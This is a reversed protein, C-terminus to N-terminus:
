RQSVASAGVAPLRGTNENDHRFKPWSSPALARSESPIAYLINGSGIYINGDAGVAPSSHIEGASATQVPFSWRRNGAADIAFVTGFASGFYLAGGDGLTPSSKIPGSGGGFVWRRAGNLPDVAYLAGSNDGVYITGDTGITPSTNVNEATPSPASWKLQGGPTVAYVASGAGVYITGDAGVAPSSWPNQGTGFAWRESGDAANIAYLNGNGTHAIYITGAVVAPSSAFGLGIYNYRSVTWRPQCDAPNIAHLRHAFVPSNTAVYITGDDGLAPSSPPDGLEAHCQETGDPGIAYVNGNRAGLIIAGDSAVAPSSTGGAPFPAAWKETGDPNLAYLNDNGGLTGTFLTAVYITGGPAVAPSSRIVELANRPTFQWGVGPPPTTFSLIQGKATGGSNSAAARFYYTTGATLGSVGASVPVDSTSSAVPQSPTPNLALATPSPDTGWEFWVATASGGPNVMGNLAASTSTVSSAVTTTVAPATWNALLIGLDRGDVIEDRNIDSPPTDTRGWDALLQNLDTQDVLGDGNLDGALGGLDITVDRAQDLTVQCSHGSCNNGTGNWGTVISGTWLTVSLTVVIGRDFLGGCGPENVTGRAITCDIGMPQSAVRGSGTGVGSITLSNFEAPSGWPERCSVNHARGSKCAYVVTTYGGTTSAGSGGLRVQYTGTLVGTSLPVTFVIEPDRGVVDDAEALQTGGPDYLAATADLTSGFREAYVRVVITDGGEVSRLFLTFYDADGGTTIVGTAAGMQLQGDFLSFTALSTATSAADNPEVELQPALVLVTVTGTEPRCADSVCVLVFVFTRSTGAGLTISGSGRYTVLGGANRGQIDANYTGATITVPGGTWTRNDTGALPNLGITVTPLGAGSLTVTISALAPPSAVFNVTFNVDATSSPGAPGTGSDCAVFTLVSALIATRLGLWRRPELAPRPGATSLNRPHASMYTEGTAHRENGLRISPMAGAFEGM